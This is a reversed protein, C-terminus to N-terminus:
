GIAGGVYRAAILMLAGGIILRIVLTPVWRQLYSGFYIGAMGGLGFLGGLLWDPSADEVHGGPALGYCIAAAVSSIWTSFLAAGSVVYVPLNLVSICFPAMIAGGGIGYAGGVVGVVLSLALLPATGFRYTQGQFDVSASRWGLRGGTIRDSGKFGGGAKRASRGLLEAAVGYFLRVGMYGLVLGVFVKFHEPRPLYTVRIYYGAAIGPVTGLTLLALLPWALRGERIHRYVGLPISVVNYVFNTGSVGPATYGLVSMQFPLLVFAGSLGGMSTLSSIVFMVLPPLLLNTEVGSIPFEYRLFDM